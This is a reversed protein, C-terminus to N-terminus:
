LTYKSSCKPMEYASIKLNANRLVQLSFIKFDIWEHGVQLEQSM